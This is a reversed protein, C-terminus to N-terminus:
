LLSLPNYFSFFIIHSFYANFIFTGIAASVYDVPIMETVVEFPYTKM